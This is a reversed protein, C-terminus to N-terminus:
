IPTAYMCHDFSFTTTITFITMSQCFIHARSGAVVGMSTEAGNQEDGFNDRNRHRCSPWSPKNNTPCPVRCRSPEVGVSCPNHPWRVALAGFFIQKLTVLYSFFLCVEMRLPSIRWKYDKGAQSTFYRSRRFDADAM